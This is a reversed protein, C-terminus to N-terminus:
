HTNSHMILDNSPTLGYFDKDARFGGDTLLVSEGIRNEVWTIGFSMVVYLQDSDISICIDREMSVSNDLLDTYAM